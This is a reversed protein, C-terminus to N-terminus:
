LRPFRRRVIGIVADRQAVTVAGTALAAAAYACVALPASLFPSVRDQLVFAIAAMPVGCLLALGVTRLVDRDIVGRVLLLGTAVVISESVVATVCLGLGGNGTNEQFWPVLFPNLTLSVAVCACQLICWSTRRGAALAASSIPLSFFLLFLFISMVRLNDEASGFEDRGFISVGIEPYLACGFAAPAAVLAVAKLADRTTQTYGDRNAAWLRCLTPYLSGVLTTAPLILLGVLRRTVAYWGMVEEPALRSLFLADVIPQLAMAVDNFVFPTGMILLVGLHERRPELAGIGVRKSARSLGIIVAIPVMFGVVLLANLRGGLLLVPVVVLIMLVQQAVHAIAPIDTREFGRISDKYGGALSNTLYALFSGALIWQFVGDHGLLWAIGALALYVVVAMLGRWAFGTGLFAAARTRDRAILAPLAGQQGWEVVLIGLACMTGALYLLGFDAPGLFRAYLANMIAALPMTLLQGAALYAM